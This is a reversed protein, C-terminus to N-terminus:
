HASMAQLSAFANVRGAGFQDDFGPPGLDVAATTLAQRAAGPSLSPNREVMLAVIGSVYAAAYSTGSVLQHAHDGSSVLVDVGPAAIAIYRGQNASAYLRDAVDTATVAIVEPYAAPYAFPAKAGGNGAAAVIIAGGAAAVAVSRELLPDRPGAFSMNLIRAHRALAWDIGRMLDYTTAVSPRDSRRLQFVRVDLLKADLAV